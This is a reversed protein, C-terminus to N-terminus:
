NMLLRKIMSLALYFVIVFALGQVGFLILLILTGCLLIIHWFHKKVEFSKIKLSLLRINSIMFYPLLLLIAVIFYQSVFIASCDVFAKGGPFVVALIFLATAPTPLGKFETSQEPDINFKALRLASFLVLVVVSYEFYEPLMNGSVIHNYLLAAPAFGFSILDSLSDLQKGFESVAKLLRAAFGDLFDFVSAAIILYVAIEVDGNLAFFIALSGCILNLSTIASPIANIIKM